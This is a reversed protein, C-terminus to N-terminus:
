AVNESAKNSANELLQAVLGSAHRDARTIAAVRRLM